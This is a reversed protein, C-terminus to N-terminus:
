NEDKISYLHTLNRGLGEYDLGFGIIFNDPVEMAAYKVPIDKRYSSPKLLLTAIEVGAPRLLSLSYTLASVTVGTDVIDEVIIVQRGAIDERLGIIERVNGSSVTSRYSSLKVFSVECPFSIRQMLEAFFMFAGNLVGIFLPVGKSGDGYDDNIRAAVKDISEMIRDHHIFIGFGKGHLTVNQADSEEM